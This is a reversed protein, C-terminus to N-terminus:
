LTGDQLQLSVHYNSVLRSQYCLTLIGSGTSFFEQTTDTLLMKVVSLSSGPSGNYNLPLLLLFGTKDRSIYKFKLELNM